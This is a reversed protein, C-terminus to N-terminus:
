IVTPGGEDGYRQQAEGQAGQRGCRGVGLGGVGALDEVDGGGCVELGDEGGKGGGEFLFTAGVDDGGEAGRGGEGLLELVASWLVEEEGRVAGMWLLEGVGLECCVRLGRGVCAANEDEPGAFVGGGM